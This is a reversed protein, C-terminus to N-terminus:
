KLFYVPIDIKKIRPTVIKAVFVSICSTSDQWNVIPAGIHLALAEMYRRIANTKNVAKYM